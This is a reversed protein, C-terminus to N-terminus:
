KQYFLFTEVTGGIYNNMAKAQGYGLMLKLAYIVDDEANATGM